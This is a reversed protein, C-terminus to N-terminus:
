ILNKIIHSFSIFLGSRNRWCKRGMITSSASSLTTLTFSTKAYITFFCMSLFPLSLSSSSKSFSRSLNLASGSSYISATNASYHHNYIKPTHENESSSVNYNKGVMHFIRKLLLSLLILELVFAGDYWTSSSQDSLSFYGCFKGRRVQLLRQGWLLWRWCWALITRWWGRFSLLLFFLDALCWLCWQCVWLPIKMM